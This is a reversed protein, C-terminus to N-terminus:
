VSGSFPRPHFVRPVRVAILELDLLAIVADVAVRHFERDDDIIRLCVRPWPRSAVLQLQREDRRARVEHLHDRGGAFSRRDFANVRSFGPPWLFSDTGRRRVAPTSEPPTM